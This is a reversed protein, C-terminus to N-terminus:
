GFDIQDLMQERSIQDLGLYALTMAESSHNLLRMVLGINYNSQVYVRYAGTKRMTHTGLYNIDLLEGVQHMVNYFQREDIHKQPRTISPFLWETTGEYRQRKLWQQYMALDSVVPKLYLTNPKGTKKDKIFAHERIAGYDDFVDSQKLRLVDSVRLLTAKGVQFITYNRRGAKFNNLLTDQVESLINSDKIPLVLQKM